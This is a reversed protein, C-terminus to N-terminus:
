NSAAICDRLLNYFTRYYASATIDANNIKTMVMNHDPIILCFQGGQGMMTWAAGRNISWWGLGYSTEFPIETFTEEVYDESVVQQGDWSGKNIFLYGIKALNSATWRTHSYGTNISVMNGDITEVEGITNWSGMEADIYDLVNERLVTSLRTGYLYTLAESLALYHNNHYNFAIWPEKYIPEDYKDPWRGTTEMGSTHTVLHRFTIQDEYGNDSHFGPYYEKVRSDLDTILGSDLALGLILGTISKSCSQVNKQTDFTGAFNWEAILYGDKILVGNAQDQNMLDAINDTDDVDMIANIADPDLGLAPIDDQHAIIWGDKTNPEDGDVRVVDSVPLSASGMNDIVTLSVNHTGESLSSTSFSAARSLEGDISSEWYYSEIYGDEDLGVGSFFVEEGQVINDPDISIINAIPPLNGSPRVIITQTVPISADMQDDYVTFTILHTGQSLSDTSFSVLTSLQGDISSTWLYATVIGDPDSGAGTFTIEEGSVIQTPAISVITATPLRNTESSVTVTGTVPESVAGDNDYVRFNISHTGVSLSSTSFSAASSLQGDISSEWSYSDITGDGDEGHGTFLVEQNVIITTPSIQDIFAVPISNEPDAQDDNLDSCATILLLILIYGLSNLLHTKM